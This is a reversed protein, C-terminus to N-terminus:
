DRSNRHMRRFADEKEEPAKANKYEALAADSAQREERKIKREEIWERAAKVVAALLKELLLSVVWGLPGTAKGFVRSLALALSKM